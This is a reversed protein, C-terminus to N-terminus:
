QHPRSRGFQMRSFETRRDHVKLEECLDIFPQNQTCADFLLTSIDHKEKEASQAEIIRQSQLSCDKDILLFRLNTNSNPIYFNTVRMNM